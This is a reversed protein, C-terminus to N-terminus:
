ISIQGPCVTYHITYLTYFFSIQLYNLQVVEVEQELVREATGLTYVHILDIM